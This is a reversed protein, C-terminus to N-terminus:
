QQSGVSGHVLEFTKVFLGGSCCFGGQSGGVLIPDRSSVNFYHTDNNLPKNM